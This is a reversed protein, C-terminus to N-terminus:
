DYLNITMENVKYSSFEEEARKRSAQGMKQRMAENQLLTLMAKSLAGSDCLPVLFGNFNDKVVERCGPVDTTIIPRGVAASELLSKPLGERYSPLVSVHSDRWVSLIDSSPGAWRVGCSESLQSLETRTFSNPNKEDVDGVLVFEAKVSQSNLNQAAHLFEGVGKDKLMRAVLTFRIVESSPFPEHSFFDTNIGAGRILCLKEKKVKLDKNFFAYDDRNQLILVMGSLNFLMRYFVSLVWKLLKAILSKSMFVFGLGGLANVVKPIGCIKAALSGILVPKQAVNHLVDPKELKLVKIVQRLLKLNSWIGVESREIGIPIVKIGAAEVVEQHANVNCLLTVDFGKDKAEKALELRHSCFYWDESVFYLLKKM